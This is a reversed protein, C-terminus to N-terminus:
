NTLFDVVAAVDDYAGRVDDWVPHTRDLLPAAARRIRNMDTKGLAAAADRVDATGLLELLFVLDQQHRLRESATAPIEAAAAAKAVAAGVLSPIRVTVEGTGFMVIVSSARRLAQTGGPAQVARAPPDTHVTGEIGEPALLDIKALDRRYRSVNDSSIELQFGLTVLADNAQYMARREYARVDVIIDGDSTVRPPRRGEAVAHVLVM